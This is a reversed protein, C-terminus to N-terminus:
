NATIIFILDIASHQAVIPYLESLIVSVMAFSTEERSFVSDSIISGKATLLAKLHTNTHSPIELEKSQMELTSRNFNEGEKRM